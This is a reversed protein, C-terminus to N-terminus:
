FKSSAATVKLTQAVLRIEPLGPDDLNTLHHVRQAVSERHKNTFLKHTHEQERELHATTTDM